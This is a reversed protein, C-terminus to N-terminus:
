GWHSFAWRILQTVLGGIVLVLGGGLYRILREHDRVKDVLGPNSNAGRLLTVLSKVDKKIEAVDTAIHKRELAEKEHREDCVKEDVAPM